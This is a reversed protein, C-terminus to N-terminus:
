GFFAAGDGSLVQPMERGRITQVQKGTGLNVISYRTDASNKRVFARAGVVQVDYIVRAPFLHFRRVGTRGYISLGTATERQSGSDWGWGWSLLVSRAVVLASSRPDVLQANWTRTDIVLLGSPRQKSALGGGSTYASADRGFVALRGDGLWVASRWSGALPGKANAAPELWDHLRGLLSVPQTPTHYAVALTALDVEAVPCGAAVAYARGGERDVAVAAGDERPVGDGTERAGAEIRALTVSRLTGEATAVVLQVPGWRHGELVLVLADRARALAIVRGQLEHQALVAGTTPDIVAVRDAVVIADNEGRQATRVLALLRDSAIWHMSLVDGYFGFSVDRVRRLRGATAIRIRAPTFTLASSSQNGFAVLRRDPSFSWGVVSDGGLGLKRGPRIRLTKPDLRVLWTESRGYHIGLLPSVLAGARLVLPREFGGRPGLGAVAVSASFAVAFLVAALRKMAKCAM